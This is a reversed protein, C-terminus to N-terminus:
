PSGHIGSTEDMPDFDHLGLIQIDGLNRCMSSHCCCFFPQSSLQYETADLTGCDAMEFCEIVDVIM